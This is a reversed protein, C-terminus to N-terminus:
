EHSTRLDNWDQGREMCNFIDRPGKSHFTLAVDPLEQKLLSM